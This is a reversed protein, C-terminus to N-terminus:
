ALWQLKTIRSLTTIDLSTTGIKYTKRRRLFCLKIFNVSPRIDSAPSGPASPIETASLCRRGCIRLLAKVPFPPLRVHLQDLVVISYM